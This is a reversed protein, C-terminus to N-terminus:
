SGWEVAYEEGEGAELLLREESKLQRDFYGAAVSAAEKGGLEGMKAKVIENARHVIEWSDRSFREFERVRDARKRDNRWARVTDRSIGSERSTRSVNGENRDLLELVERKRAKAYRRKAKRSPM